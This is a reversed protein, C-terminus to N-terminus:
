RTRRARDMERRDERAMLAQRKDAANKGRALAVDIKAIGRENFRVLLPVLTL